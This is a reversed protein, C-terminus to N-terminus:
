YSFTAGGHFRCVHRDNGVSSKIVQFGLDARASIYQSCQYRVGPGAGLLHYRKKFGPVTRHEQGYGYDIFSLFALHNQKGSKFSIKPAHIEFNALIANDANIERERYGRVSDYGGLGFQESPLLSTNSIQGELRTIIMMKKPLSFHAWLHTKGYVYHAKAFPNIEQYYRNKQESTIKLPSAFAEIGFFLKHAGFTHDLFYACTFQNIEPHNQSFIFEDFELANNTKKYDYGCEVRQLINGYTPQLPIIYRGSIQSSFGHMLIPMPINVNQFNSEVWAYGGFLKCEHRWPLRMLYSASHAILSDFDGSATFQYSLTQDLGFAHDWSFGTYIRANGTLQNGTNDAGAYVLLPFRDQTTLTLDTETSKEGPAFILDSQHFPTRNLWALDEMLKLTDIRDGKKVQLSQLFKKGSTWHNGKAEITGVKGEIIVIQIVGASVEQQPVIVTVIPHHNKQYYHCIRKRIEELSSQTLPENLFPLIKSILKQKKGPLHITPDISIGEIKKLDIEQLLSYSGLLAIARLRPLIVQPSPKEDEKKERIEQYAIEESSSADDAYIPSFSSLCLSLALTAFRKM